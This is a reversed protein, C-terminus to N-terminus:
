RTQGAISRNSRSPFHQFCLVVVSYIENSLFEFATIISISARQKKGTAPALGSGFSGLSVFRSVRGGEDDWVFPEREWFMPIHKDDGGSVFHYRPKTRRIIDVVPDAGRTPPFDNSPLPAASLATIHTPFSNTLLVDILQSPAANQMISALSNYSSKAKSNSQAPSTMTNALLKEVTQSSFYPSTFGQLSYSVM